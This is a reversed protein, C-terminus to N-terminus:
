FGVQRSVELVNWPLFPFGRTKEKVYTLLSDLAMNEPAANRINCRFAQDQREQDGYVFTIPIWSEAAKRLKWNVTHSRDDVDVRIGALNMKVALDLADGILFDNSPIIRVQIPALWLPLVPHDMRAANEINILLWREISGFATHCIVYPIRINTHIDSYYLSFREANFPDIQTNCHSYLNDDYFVHKLTWYHKRSSLVELLIPHGYRRVMDVIKQEYMAFFMEDCTLEVVSPMGATTTIKAQKFFLIEYQEWAESFDACVTHIDFLSFARAREVGRLEGSRENRLSPAYEYLHMPLNRRTIRMAKLLHFFGLDANFRVVYEKEKEVAGAFYLRESFTHALDYIAPNSWDFLLPTLIEQAQLHEVILSEHWMRMLHYGLTGFPMYSYHGKDSVAERRCWGLEEIKKHAILKKNESRAFVRNQILRAFLSDDQSMSEVVHTTTGDPSVKLWRSVINKTIADRNPPPTTTM